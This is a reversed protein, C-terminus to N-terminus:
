ISTIVCVLFSLLKEGKKDLFQVTSAVIETTYKKVGDKDEYSRTQM